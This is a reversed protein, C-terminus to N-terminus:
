KPAAARVRAVISEAIREATENIARNEDRGAMVFKAAVVYPNLKVIAGPAHGGGEDVTQYLPPQGPKSLDDLAIAVQIGAGGAGFGIVARRLRNGQDVDLFVGRVLWGVDPLPNDPAARRADIGAKVLDATLAHAMGSIIARAHAQPDQDSQRRLLAGGLVRRARSGPGEDAQVDAADLEFDSVYVVAQVPLAAVNSGPAPPPASVAGNTQALALTAAAALWGTLGLGAMRIWMASQWRNVSM